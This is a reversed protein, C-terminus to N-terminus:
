VVSKGCEDTTNMEASHVTFYIAKCLFYGEADVIYSRVTVSQGKFQKLQGILSDINQLQRASILFQTMVLSQDAENLKQMLEDAQKTVADAKHQAEGAAAGADSAKNEAISSKQLASQANTDAAGAKDSLSGILMGSLTNTRVLCILEFALSSILLLTSLKGLREKREKIGGTFWNTFEAIYEGACAITVLGACVYEAIEWRSLSKSLSAVDSVTLTM